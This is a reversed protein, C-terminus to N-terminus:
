AVRTAGEQPNVSVKFHVPTMVRGTSLVILRDHASSQYGGPPTIVVERSWTKGEDASWRFVKDAVAPGGIRSYSVGLEGNALRALGPQAAGPGPGNFVIRPATWTRGEDRSIMSCIDSPWHDISIGAKRRHRTVLHLLSGDKLRIITGVGNRIYGGSVPVLLQGRLGGVERAVPDDAAPACAALVLMLVLGVLRKM